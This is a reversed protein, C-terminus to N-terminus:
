MWPVSHPYKETALLFPPEAGLESNLWPYAPAVQSFAAASQLRQAAVLGLPLASSDKKPRM